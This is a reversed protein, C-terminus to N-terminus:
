EEISVIQRLADHEHRKVLPHTVDQGRLEGPVRVGPRGSRRGRCAYNPKAIKRDEHNLTSRCISMLRGVRRSNRSVITSASIVADVRAAWVGVFCGIFIANM